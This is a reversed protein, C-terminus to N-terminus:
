LVVTIKKQLSLKKELIEIKLTYNNGQVLRVESQVTNQNALFILRRYTYRGEGEADEILYEGSM